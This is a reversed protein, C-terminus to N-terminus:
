DHEFIFAKKMADDIDMLEYYPDGFVMKVRYRMKEFDQVFKHRYLKYLSKETFDGALFIVSM